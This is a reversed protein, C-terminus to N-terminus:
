RSRMRARSCTKTHRMPGHPPPTTSSTSCACWACRSSCTSSMALRCFPRWPHARRCFSEYPARTGILRRTSHPRLRGSYVLRRLPRSGQSGAGGIPLGAKLPASSRHGSPQQSAAKRLRSRPVAVTTAFHGSDVCPQNKCGAVTSVNSGTFLGPEGPALSQSDRARLVPLFVGLRVRM